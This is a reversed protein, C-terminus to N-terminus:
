TLDYYKVILQPSEMVVHYPSTPITFFTDGTVDQQIISVYMGSLYPMAQRYISSGGIVFSHPFKELADTLSKVWVVDHTSSMMDRHSVVVNLRGALPRPLSEYTARGMICPFGMTMKHFFRMDEKCYWPITGHSGIVGNRSVAVIGITM